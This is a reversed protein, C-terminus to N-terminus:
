AGGDFFSLHRQIYENIGRDEDESWVAGITARGLRDTAEKEHQLEAKLTDQKGAPSSEVGKTLTAVKAKRQRVKTNHELVAIRHHVGVTVMLHGLAAISAGRAGERVYYQELPPSKAV